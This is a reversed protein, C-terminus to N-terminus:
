DGERSRANRTLTRVARVLDEPEPRQDLHIVPEEAFGRDDPTGLTVVPTGAALYVRLLENSPTGVMAADSRLWLDLVVVDAGDILACRGERGGVCVYEPGTPGTCGFVDFGSRELANGLRDREQPDAEVILVTTDRSRERDM